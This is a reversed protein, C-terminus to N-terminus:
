YQKNAEILYAEYNDFAVEKYKSDEPYPVNIYATGNAQIETDHNYGNCCGVIKGNKYYAVLVNMSKISVDNNNKVQVAIQKGTNNAIIEFNNPVLDENMYSKSLVIEFEYNPYKSFDKEFGWNYNIIESNAGVMFYQSNSEAKEMFQGNNDKFITNVTEIYVAQSNNNKVKFAFDGNSTIGIADIKINKKLEENNTTEQKGTEINTSTTTNINEIDKQIGVYAIVVLITVITGLVIGTISKGKEQKKTLSIIGLIIGIIATILSYSWIFPMFSIAISVIGLILSVIGM